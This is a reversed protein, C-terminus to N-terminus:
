SIPESIKCDESVHFYFHMGDFKHPNKINPDMVHSCTKFGNPSFKVRTWKIDHDSVKKVFDSSKSLVHRM